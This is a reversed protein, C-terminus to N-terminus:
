WDGEEDIDDWGTSDDAGEATTSQIAAVLGRDGGLIAEVLTKLHETTEAHSAIYGSRLLDLFAGQRLYRGSLADFSIRLAGNTGQCTPDAALREFHALPTIIGGKGLLADRKVFKLYFMEPNLRYDRPDTGAMSRFRRM